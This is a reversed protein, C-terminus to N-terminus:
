NEAQIAAATELEHFNPSEDTRVRPLDDDMKLWPVQSEVGTHYEPSVDEPHDLSGVGVAMLPGGFPRYILRSGCTACFGREGIDSSRYFTAQGYTFRFAAKRFYVGVVFPGGSAKQCMRCHCISTRQPPENSEYRVAGCLCGGTIPTNKDSM